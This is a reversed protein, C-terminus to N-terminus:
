SNIPRWATNPPYGGARAGHHGADPPARLLPPRRRSSVWDALLEHPHNPRVLTGLFSVFRPINYVEGIEELTRCNLAIWRLRLQRPDYITLIFRQYQRDIVAYQKGEAAVSCDPNDVGGCSWLIERVRETPLPVFLGISRYLQEFPSPYLRQLVHCLEHGAAELRSLVMTTGVTWSAGMEIHPDLMIVVNVVLNSATPPLEVVGCLVGFAAEVQERIYEYETLTMRRCSRACAEPIIDRSSCQPFKLYLERDRLHSHYLSSRLQKAFLDIDSELEM